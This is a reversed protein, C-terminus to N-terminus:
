YSEIKEKIKKIHDSMKSFKYGTAERIKDSKMSINQPLCDASNIDKILCKVIKGQKINLESKLLAALEYRSFTESSSFNYLGRLNKDCALYFLNVLDNIYIPCFIQDAACSLTRNEKLQSILSTIFTGDKPKTGFVKSLRTIIFEKNSKLLFDEIAKKHKGYENCPNTEDLESYGGKKGDFVADSSLFVPVIKNEFCQEIIRKNGTVNIKFALEGNNKCENINSIGSCIIAYKIVKLDTDIDTLNSDVSSFYHLGAIKEPFATGIVEVGRKEFNRKLNGGIFGSAGIILIKM